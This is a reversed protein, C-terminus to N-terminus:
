CLRLVYGRKADRHIAEKWQTMRGALFKKDLEQMVSKADAAKTMDDKLEQHSVFKGQNEWLARLALWSKTDSKAVEFERKKYYIVRRHLDIGFFGVWDGSRGDKYAPVDKPPDGMFELMARSRVHANWVEAANCCDWEKLLTMVGKIRSYHSDDHSVKSYRALLQLLEEVTSRYLAQSREIKMKKKAVYERLSPDICSCAYDTVENELAAARTLLADIKHELYEYCRM